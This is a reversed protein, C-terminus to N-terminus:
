LRDSCVAITLYFGPDLEPWFREEAWPDGRLHYGRREYFGPAEEATLEIGMVWKASKWAYRAPVVLRVPWGHDPTLDRGDLGTALLVDDAMLGELDMSATFGGYCHITAFRAEGHPRALAALDRFRVGEWRNGLRSWQTVCHLDSTEEARPLAAFQGWGLEVEREVLGFIGIRWSELDLVPTRGFTRVPLRTELKQGPPLRGAGEAVLAGITVSARGQPRQWTSTSSTSCECGPTLLRKRGTAPGTIRSSRM